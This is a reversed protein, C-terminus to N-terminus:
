GWPTQLVEVRKVRHGSMVPLIVKQTEDICSKRNTLSDLSHCSLHEKSLVFCDCVANYRLILYKVINFQYFISQYEIKIVIIKCHEM